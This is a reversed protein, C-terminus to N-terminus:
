TAGLGASSPPSPAIIHVDGGAKRVRYKEQNDQWGSWFARCWGEVTQQRAGRYTTRLVLHEQGQQTRWFGLRLGAGSGGPSSWSGPRAWFEDPVGRVAGSGLPHKEAYERMEDAMQKRANDLDLGSLREWRQGVETKAM